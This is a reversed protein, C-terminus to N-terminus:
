LLDVPYHLIAGGALKATGRLHESLGHVRGDEAVHAIPEKGVMEEGGRREMFVGLGWTTM